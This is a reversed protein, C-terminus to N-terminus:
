EDLVEVVSLGGVKLAERAVDALEPRVYFWAGARHVPIVLLLYARYPAAEVFYDIGAEDLVSEAHKADRLRKALQVLELEDDGFFDAERRM